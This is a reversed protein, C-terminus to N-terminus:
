SISLKITYMQMPRGNPFHSEFKLQGGCKLITNRSADNETYCSLLVEDLGLNRSYDLAHELMATAYGHQRESPRVSFGISGGFERLFDNLEPRINIIGLLRDDSQRFALLTTAALWGEAKPSVSFDNRVLRLWDSYEAFEELLPAGHIIAAEKGLMESKFDLVAAEHKESPEVFSIESM